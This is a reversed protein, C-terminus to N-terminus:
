YVFEVVAVTCSIFSIGATPKGSVVAPGSDVHQQQQQQQQQKQQQQQQPPQQQQPQPQNQAPTPQVPTNVPQSSSFASTTSFQIGGYLGGARSSM